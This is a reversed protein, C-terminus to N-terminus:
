TIRGIMRLMTLGMNYPDFTNLMKVIPIADELPFSFTNMNTGSIRLGPFCESTSNVWVTPVITMGSTHMAKETMFREMTKSDMEFDTKGVNPFIEYLHESVMAVTKELLVIFPFYKKGPIFVGDEFSRSLRLSFSPYISVFDERPQIITTFKGEQSFEYMYTVRLQPDVSGTMLLHNLRM